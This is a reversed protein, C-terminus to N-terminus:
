SRKVERERIREAFRGPAAIRALGHLVKALRPLNTQRAAVDHASANCWLGISRMEGIDKATAPRHVGLIYDGGLLLNYNCNKYRHHLWHHRALYRFYATRALARIVIPGRQMVLDYRMHLYPHVFQALLPWIFFPVCAGISFWGGGLCCLSTFIPLSPAIYKVYSKPQSGLIVGYRCEIIDDICETKLRSNLKSREADSRFQTVHNARFTLSHHVVHHSYWAYLLSQGPWGAKEYWRRLSPSAHQITRHFFSECLSITLHGCVLGSFILAFTFATTM